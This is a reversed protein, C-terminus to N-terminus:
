KQSSRVFYGLVITRVRNDRGENTIGQTGWGWSLGPSLSPHQFPSLCGRTSAAASATRRRHRPCSPGQIRAGRTNHRGIFLIFISHSILSQFLLDPRSSLKTPSEGRLDLLQGKVDILIFPSIYGSGEYFEKPSRGRSKRLARAM